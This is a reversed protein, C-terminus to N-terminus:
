SQNLDRVSFREVLEGSVLVKAAPLPGPSKICENLIPVALKGIQRKSVEITTLAPDLMASTPLNDFGIISVDEPVRIGKEKLARICGFAIIDNSCFLATPLKKRTPLTEIMDKYVGPFTSDVMFCFDKVYPLGHYALAEKFATARMAFNPTTVYSAVIGIERHGKNVFHEVAM